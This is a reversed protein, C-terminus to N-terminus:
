NKSIDINNVKIYEDYSYLKSKLPNKNYFKLLMYYSMYLSLSLAYIESFIFNNIEEVNISGDKDFIRIRLIEDSEEKGNPILVENIDMFDENLFTICCFEPKGARNLDRYFGTIITENILSNPVNTEEILERVAAYKIINIFNPGKKIDKFDVSGSGTPQLKNANINTRNNHCMIIIFGDKSIALTSVGIHDGMISDFLSQIEYNRINLPSELIFGKYKIKKNYINNTLYSNYYSGKCLSVIYKNAEKRDYLENAMCLKEENFFLGGNSCLNRWKCNLFKVLVSRYIHIYKITKKRKSSYLKYYIPTGSLLVESNKESILVAEAIDDIILLSYESAVRKSLLYTNKEGNNDYYFCGKSSNYYNWVDRITSVIQWIINIFLLFLLFLFNSVELFKNFDIIAYILIIIDILLFISNIEKIKFGYCLYDIINRLQEKKM